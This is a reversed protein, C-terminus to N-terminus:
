AINLYIAIVQLIASSLSLQRLCYRAKITNKIIVEAYTSKILDMKNMFM